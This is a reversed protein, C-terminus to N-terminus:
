SCFSSLQTAADSVSCAQALSLRYQLLAVEYAKQAYVASIVGTVFSIITLLGVAIAIWFTAFQLANKGNKELAFQHSGMPVEGLVNNLMEIQGRWYHYKNLDLNRARGCTALDYFTKKHELLLSKTPRHGDPFLLNLTDLAEELISQPLATEDIFQLHNRLCIKHEYVTLVRHRSGPQENLSLHEAINSTWDLIFDHSSVLTAMTLEVRLNADKAPTTSASTQFGSSLQVALTQNNDWQIVGRLPAVAESSQTAMTVTVWLSAAVDVSRSVADDSPNKHSLKEKIQRVVGAKDVNRLRRVEGIIWIIDDSTIPRPANPTRDVTALITNIHELVRTYDKPKYQEPSIGPWLMKVVQLGTRRPVM